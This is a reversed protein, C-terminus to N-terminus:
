YYDNISHLSLIFVHTNPIINNIHINQESRYQCIILQMIIIVATGRNIWNMNTGSKIEYRVQVGHNDSPWPMGVTRGGSRSWQEHFGKGRRGGWTHQTDGLKILQINRVLVFGVLMRNIENIIGIKM